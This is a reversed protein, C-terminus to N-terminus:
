SAVQEQAHAPCLDFTDITPGLQIVGKQEKTCQDCLPRDCTKGARKGRLPYDCLRTAPKGCAVCAAKKPRKGRMCITVTTGDRLQYQECTM